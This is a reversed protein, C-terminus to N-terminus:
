SIKKQIKPAIKIDLFNKPGASEGPKSAGKQEDLSIPTYQMNTLQLMAEQASPAELLGTVAQGENNRAKYVFKTM